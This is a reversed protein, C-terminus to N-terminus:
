SYIYEYTEGELTTIPITIYFTTGEGEISSIKINGGLDREVIDKVISLGLGRNIEGTEYNIKTSFGPSFVHELDKENIGCGTDVITFIQNGQKLEHFFYIGGKESKECISDLSNMILNRFISMLYYHRTTYFNESISFKLETNPKRHKIEINMSEELIEIVDKFYMGKDEDKNMTVEEVGRVVLGYEKKIEHVDKAIDVSMQAWSEPHQELTIKEFLEYANTMVQEIDNMNKKMWYMETKLRSTMWLLKKYRKEHEEKILLLKYFKIGGLFLCIVASRVVAVIMITTVVDRTLPHSNYFNRILVEVLNSCFDSIILTIYLKKFNLSNEKKNLVKFFISYFTYFFIEPFYSWLTEQLNGHNIFYVLVRLLYVGMACAFGTKIADMDDFIYLFIPFLIIAVSVRFDAIIVNMYIQSTVAVIGSLILTKKLKNKAISNM